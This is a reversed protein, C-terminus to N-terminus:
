AYRQLGVDEKDGDPPSGTSGAHAELLDTHCQVTSEDPDVVGEAGQGPTKATPSM